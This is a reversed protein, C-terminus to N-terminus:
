EGLIKWALEVVAPVQANGIAKFRDMWNPFGDHTRSIGTELLRQKTALGITGAINWPSKEPCRTITKSVNSNFSQIKEFRKCDPYFSFIWIRERKHYAGAHEAGLVGWRADYGMAAIDAIVRTGGRSTLMPSNEVFVIAPRIEGIIRAFESWLGSREGDLGAGKGASSIDQCPFGGSVVLEGRINRLFEIYERCEPNDIRFTKVDDWIPFKPLMGDKQRALLVRRPYDEIEIAGICTHGCLIGGLIGGGAGAFLALEYM